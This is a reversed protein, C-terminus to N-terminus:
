RGNEFLIYEEVFSPLIKWIGRESRVGFDACSDVEVGVEVEVGVGVGVLDTSKIM